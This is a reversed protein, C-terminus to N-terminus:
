PLDGTAVPLDRRSWDSFSGIYVDPIPHGAIYAGRGQSLDTLSWRLDFLVVEGLRDALEGVSILPDSM